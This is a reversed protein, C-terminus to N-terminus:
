MKSRTEFGSKLSSRKIDPPSQLITSIVKGFKKFAPSQAHSKLAGENAYKEVIILEDKGKPQVAYYSLTEPENAEVHLSLNEFAQILEGLKGTQPVLTVVIHVVESSM